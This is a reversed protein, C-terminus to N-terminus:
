HREHASVAQELAALVEQSATTVSFYQEAFARANSGLRKRFEANELRLLGETLGNPTPPCLIGTESDIIAYRHPKLDTALVARGVAMYDPIKGPFALYTSLMWPRPIVLIDAGRLISPMADYDVNDWFQLAGTTALDRWQKLFESSRGFSGVFTFDYSAHNQIMRTAVKLLLDCGQWRLFNGAYLVQLRDSAGLPTTPGNPYFMETDVIGAVLTSKRSLRRVIPLLTPNAVILGDARQM